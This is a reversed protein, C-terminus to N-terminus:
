THKENEDQLFQELIAIYRTSAMEMDCLDNIPINLKIAMDELRLRRAERKERPTM